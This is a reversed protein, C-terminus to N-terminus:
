WVARFQAFHEELYERRPHAATDDPLVIRKGQLGYYVKGNNFEERLRESVVFEYDPTVSVYHQDYLRHIDARLLLGNDVTNPGKQSHPIIHSAELAPLSHERSVACRQYAKSVELRFTGQGLRPSTLRPTGFRQESDLVLDLNEVTDTPLDAELQRARALCDQWVRRGEGEQLDYTKGSVINPKWNRPPDVTMGPPFFIPSILLIAGVQHNLAAPGEPCNAYKQVREVMAGLSEVGNRDRFLDWAYSIRLKVFSLFLGFGVIRHNQKAKLKFILPEGQQLAKFTAGSPRWFNVEDIPQHNLFYRYWGEDTLAIFGNM